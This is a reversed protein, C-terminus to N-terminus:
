QRATHVMIEAVREDGHIRKCAAAAKGGGDTVYVADPHM